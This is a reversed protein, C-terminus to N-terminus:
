AGGARVVLDRCASVVDYAAQRRERLGLVERGAERFERLWRRRVKRGDAVAWAIVLAAVAEQQDAAKLADDIEILGNIADRTIAFPTTSSTSM